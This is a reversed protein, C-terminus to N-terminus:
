KWGFIPFAPKLLDEDDRGLAALDYIRQLRKGSSSSFEVVVKAESLMSPLSYAYTAEVGLEPLDFEINLPVLSVHLQYAPANGRNRLLVGRADAKLTAVVDPLDLTEEMIRFSMYLLGAVVFLAASLFPEIFFAVIALIICVVIILDNRKM